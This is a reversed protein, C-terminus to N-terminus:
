IFIRYMWYAFLVWIAIVPLVYIGKKQLKGEFKIQKCEELIANPVSKLTLWVLFPLVIVDDLYGLFPIFDPIIDIPSLAYGITIVALSKTIVPTKPYKLVVYVLNVSNRLWELKEKLKSPKEKNM